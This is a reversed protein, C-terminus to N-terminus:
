GPEEIVAEDSGRDAPEVEQAAPLHSIDPAQDSGTSDESGAMSLNSQRFNDIASADPLSAQHSEETRRM